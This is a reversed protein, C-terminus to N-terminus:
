EGKATKLELEVIKIQNKYYNVKQEIADKYKCIIKECQQVYYDVCDKEKYFINVSEGSYSRFGTNDYPAIIQKLPEGKKNLPRFHFTSYYVTKNKPLEENSIVMVKQPKIHRIAKNDVDNIRYDCIWVCEGIEHIKTYESHIM